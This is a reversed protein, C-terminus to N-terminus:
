KFSKEYKKIIKYFTTKKLKLLNFAQVAKINGAKWEKYVKEFDKPIETIPRGFHKGKMKAAEIGERQRQLTNERELEALAAFVTLIFKGQPTNTDINEKLSVIAVGKQKLREVINLLDKTSRALRSISEIYLTDGERIYEMMRKFEPRDTNKGSAKEIFYRDMGIENLAIEQRDTHQDVSSVRIYAIKSM